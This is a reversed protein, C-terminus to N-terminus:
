KSSWRCTSFHVARSTATGRKWDLLFSNGSSNQSWANNVNEFWPLTLHEEQILYWHVRQQHCNSEKKASNPSYPGGSSLWYHNLSVTPQSTSFVYIGKRKKRFFQRICTRLIDDDSALFANIYSELAFRLLTKAAPIEAHFATLLVLVGTDLSYVDLITEPCIQAFDTSRSVIQHDAEELSHKGEQMLDM